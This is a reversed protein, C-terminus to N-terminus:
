MDPDDFKEAAFPDYVSDDNGNEDEDDDNNQREDGYDAEDDM